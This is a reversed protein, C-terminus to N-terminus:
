HLRKEPKRVVTRRGHRSDLVSIYRNVIRGNKHGKWRGRIEVQPDTAGHEAACTAPFKRLSDTGVLVRVQRLLEQFEEHKWMKGLAYPYAAKSKQLEDDSKSRGFLFRPDGQSTTFKSELHCSLALLVCFDPDYSGLLIQDPCDREEM